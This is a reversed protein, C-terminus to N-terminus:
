GNKAWRPSGCLTDFITVQRTGAQGGTRRDATLNDMLTGELKQGLVMITYTGDDNVWFSYGTNKAVYTQGM